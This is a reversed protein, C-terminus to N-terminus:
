FGCRACARWFPDAVARAGFFPLDSTFRHVSILRVALLGAMDLNLHLCGNFFFFDHYCVGRLRSGQQIAEVM